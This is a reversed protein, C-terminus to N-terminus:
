LSFKQWWLRRPYGPTKKEVSGARQRKGHSKGQFHGQRAARLSNVDPCANIKLYCLFDIFENRKSGM